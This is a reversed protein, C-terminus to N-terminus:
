AENFIEKEFEKLALSKNNISKDKLQKVTEKIGKIHLAIKNQIDIPPLPINIKSIKEQNMIPITSTYSDKIIDNKFNNLYYYIYDVCAVTKDLVIGTIQQNSSAFDNKVIGVKGTTSGIGVFLLTNKYFVRAKKDNLAKDTIKRASVLLDKEEGLDSPTYFNINGDFYEKRSTPPTTGTSINLIINKFQILDYISKISQSGNNVSWINIDKFNVFNLLNDEETKSLSIGLEKYLYKEIEEEKDEAEKEQQASLSLKDQYSQVIKKQVELPPLPIKVELFKKEDIRQRGTTGSSASQAFQQFKKTTTMLVLFYPEIKTTDIDYAFFDATIIAGDVEYTALGFAGNRADIKSLLFQGEKILFQKKTGINKGIEKDRLLVGKNYLKITVRKYETEDDVLIQTKNRKLFSGIKKLKYNKNYEFQSELLHAVSWNSLTTYKTFDLLKSM